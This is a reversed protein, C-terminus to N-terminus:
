PTYEYAGIDPNGVVPNYAYDTTLGVDVGANICPSDFAIHLDPPDTALNTLKPDTNVATAEWTPIGTLDYSTGGEVYILYGSMRYYCNNTHVFGFGAYATLAAHTTEYILNNKIKWGALAHRCCISGVGGGAKDNDYLTNNYVVSTTSNTGHFDALYIGANRNAYILNDHISCHHINGEYVLVGNQNNKGFVNHHVNVYECPGDTPWPQDGKVYAWIECGDTGNTCINNYIEVWSSSRIAVGYDENYTVGVINDDCNNDRVTTHDSFTVYAGSSNHRLDNSYCENGTQRNDTDHGQFLVGFGGWYNITCNKVLHNGGPYTASYAFLEVAGKGYDFNIITRLGILTCTDLTHYYGGLIQIGKCGCKSMTLGTYNWYHSIPAAIATAGGWEGAATTGVGYINLNTLNIYDVNTAGNTWIAHERVPVEVGPATYVTSPDGGSSFVYLTDTLWFFDLASDVSGLSTQPNGATGNYIVLHPEYALATKWVNGAHNTWSIFKDAGCISPLAGSGYDTYTIPNVSVGSYGVVLTERWLEGRKFRITDGAILTIANVKSITKWPLALTGSNSDSGLTQDVYYTAASGDVPIRALALVVVGVVTRTASATRSGSIARTM